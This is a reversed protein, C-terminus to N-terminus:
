VSKRGLKKMIRFRWLRTFFDRFFEPHTLLRRGYWAVFERPNRFPLKILNTIYSRAQLRYLKEIEFMESNFNREFFNNSEEFAYHESILGGALCEDWLRSGPIPIYIFPSLYDIKLDLAFKMSREIQAFPEGPFGLIFYGVTAIRHKRALRAVERAKDLAFPKGVFREFTEPDGSEVALSIEYCGSQKMLRILDEDLTWIAIGNPTNWPMALGREVMKSFIEVARKKDATLNDDQWKLEQIGYAEKLHKIEALVNEASRKRFRGGWHRWSSCFACRNPCGRSSIIPVNRTKRWHYAMPMRAQFYKELPLLDRAPFPLTDLDEIWTTRPHVVIRDGDRYAIGDIAALNGGSDRSEIIDRLGLEGEGLVVIDVDTDALTKEPLFSPHTGGTVVLVERGIDNKIRRSLRAVCGIQNSFVCSLGVLDPQWARIREIIQDDTLGVREVEPTVAEKQTWAEAVCDLLRVEVRDRIFAALSAIGMPPCVMTDLVKVDYMPPFILMVRRIPRFRSLTM